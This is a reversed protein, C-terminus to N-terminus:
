LNQGVGRGHVQQHALKKATDDGRLGSERVRGDDRGDGEGLDGSALEGAAGEDGPGALERGVGTRPTARRGELGKGETRRGQEHATGGRCIGADDLIGLELALFSESVEGLRDLGSSRM